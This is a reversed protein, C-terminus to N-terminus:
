QERLLEGAWGAYRSEGISLEEFPSQHFHTIHIQELVTEGGGGGARYFPLWTRARGPHTKRRHCAALAVPCCSRALWANASQGPLSAFPLDESEALGVWFATLRWQAGDLEYGDFRM